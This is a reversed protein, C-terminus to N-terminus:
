ANITALKKTVFDLMPHGMVVRSFNNEAYGQTNRMPATHDCYDAVANILGWQTGNFKRIDPMYYCVMMDNRAKKMNAIHRDSDETHIPFMEAIVEDIKERSISTHALIDAQKSLEEMYKNALGLTHSAEALKAELNGMHRTSWFRQAGDLAINLTNNCVVRIPTMFVRIAGQGDHSNNFCLYPVVDDGLISTKPLHALLWVSKGNKLSGATEYRVDGGIINDTFAFAEKNQVIKYKETVVGLVSNDSTRTNAVYGPIQRGDELFLPKPVVEWDLGALRIAEASNPAEEVRVGLGHWPVERTYMMSEVEHAM